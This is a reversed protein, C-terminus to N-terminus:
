IKHLLLLVILILLVLGIGSNPGVGWGQRIGGFLIAIIVILLIIGLTSM